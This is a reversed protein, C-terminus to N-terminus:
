LGEQQLMDSIERLHQLSIRKAEISVSILRKALETQDIGISLQSLRYSLDSIQDLTERASLNSRGIEADSTIKGLM